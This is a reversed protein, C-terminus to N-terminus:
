LWSDLVSVGTKADLSGVLLGVDAIRNEDCYARIGEAITIGAAPDVFNATGVQVASAGTILFELADNANM